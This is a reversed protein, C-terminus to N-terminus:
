PTQLAVSEGFAGPFFGKSTEGLKQHCDADVECRDRGEDDYLM